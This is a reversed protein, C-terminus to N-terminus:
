CDYLYWFVYLFCLSIRLLSFRYHFLNLGEFFTFCPFNHLFWPLFHWHTTLPDKHHLTSNILWDLVVFRSKNCLSICLSRTNIVLLHKSRNYPYICDLNKTAQLSNSIAEVVTPHLFRTGLHPSPLLLKYPSVMPNQYPFSLRCPKFVLFARIHISATVLLKIQDSQWLEEGGPICALKTM